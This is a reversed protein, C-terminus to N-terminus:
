FYQIFNLSLEYLTLDGTEIIHSLREDLLPKDMGTDSIVQDAAVAINSLYMGKIGVNISSTKNIKYDLM